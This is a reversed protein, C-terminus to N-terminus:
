PKWDSNATRPRAPWIQGPLSLECNKRITELRRKCNKAKSALDPWIQGPLSIKCNGRLTELRFKCNKAKSALDLWSQSPLSLKCNGRSTELGLKCNKAESALDPRPLQTQLEEKLHGTQRLKCNKAKSSLDPWIQGSPQTQLEEKLNGIQTQLEQGQQGSRALNPRPPQTQLNAARAHMFTARRAM